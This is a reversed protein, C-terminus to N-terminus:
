ISSTTKVNKLEMQAIRKQTDLIIPEQGSLLTIIENAIQAKAWM